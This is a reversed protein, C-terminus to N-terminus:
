THRVYTMFSRTVYNDQWNMIDGKLDTMSGGEYEIASYKNSIDFQWGILASKIENRGDELQDETIAAVAISITIAYRQTTRTLEENPTVQEGGQYVVAIPYDTEGELASYQSYSFVDVFSPCEVKLKEIIFDTKM